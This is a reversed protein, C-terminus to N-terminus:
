KKHCHICMEMGSKANFRLLRPGSSRHPEHCGACYFPKGPRSPDTLEITLTEQVTEKGSKKFIKKRKISLVPHIKDGFGTIGHVKTDYGAHCELCVEAPKKLLLAIEDSAHPSHCSLCMGGAVPMHVTKGTFLKKDHCTFCLDPAEAKLLKANKSSHPDHCGTCGMGVAAHVNKKEFNKRDHCGYCLDPQESNLGRAILNTKKHPVKAADIGGHCTACGMDVAAHLVKGAKLKAHCKLCDIEAGFVASSIVLFIMAIFSGFCVPVVHKKM